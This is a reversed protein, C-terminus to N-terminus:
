EDAENYSSFDTKEVMTSPQRKLPSCAPCRPVKLVHRTVIKTALLNVEILTGVNWSSLVGSYFKFLEFAAIEGLIHAMSPHFGVVTQGDFAVAEVARHSKWDHLHSNQRARLCQYCATENPVVMPGVYGILNSLVVPLFTTESEICLRNLECLAETEGFDSTAMVCDPAPSEIQGDWAILKTRDRWQGPNVTGEADFMRTNRLRPHDVVEYREFGSASLASCLQRSIYNIGVIIIRKKKLREDVESTQADFHWYFLDLPSEPLSSHVRYEAQPVVFRRVVLQELLGEVGHRTAPPFQNCITEKTVGDNRFLALVQQVTDAAGPGSIKLEECSRKLIVGDSVAIVKLPLLKLTVAFKDQKM